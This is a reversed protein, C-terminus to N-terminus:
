FRFHKKTNGRSSSSSSFCSAQGPPAGGGGGRPPLPGQPSPRRTASSSRYSRRPPRAPRRPPREPWPPLPPPAGPEVEMPCSPHTRSMWGQPPTGARGCQCPRAERAAPFVWELSAHSAGWAACRTARPSSVDISPEIRLHSHASADWHQFWGGSFGATGMQEESRGDSM